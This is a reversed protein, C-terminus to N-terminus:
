GTMCESLEKKEEDTCDKKSAEILGLLKVNIMMYSPHFISSFIPWVSQKIIMWLGESTTVKEPLDKKKEGGEKKEEGGDFLLSQKGHSGDFYCERSM